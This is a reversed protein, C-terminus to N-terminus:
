TLYKIELRFLYDKKGFVKKDKQADKLKFELHHMLDFHEKMDTALINRIVMNRFNNLESM